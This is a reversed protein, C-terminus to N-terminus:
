RTVLEALRVLRDAQQRSYGISATWEYFGGIEDALGSRKIHALHAGIALSAHTQTISANTNRNIANM